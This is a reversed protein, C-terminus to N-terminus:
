LLGLVWDGVAGTILELVEDQGMPARKPVEFGHSGYPVPVLTHGAALEPFEAPGGFPDAAGQVVLTPLGSELLEAARSKEPRGPPHLPFALAVVGAAGTAAGTRCAVRAGASRGGVVLPLGGGALLEAVPTWGADLTKPAPGLRKGAVRWPQEVLAVTIGRAPLAAALAVLDRAATGGGAGHGLALVARPGAARHWTIRADGAPTPVLETTM